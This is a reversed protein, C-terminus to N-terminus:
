QTPISKASYNTPLVTATPDIIKNRHAKREDIYILYLSNESESYAYVQADVFQFCNDYEVFDIQFLQSLYEFIAKDNICKFEGYNELYGLFFSTLIEDIIPYRCLNDYVCDQSESLLEFFQFAILKLVEPGLKQSGYRPSTRLLKQNGEVLEILQNLKSESDADETEFCFKLLQFYFIRIHAFADSQFIKVCRAEDLLNKQLFEPLTLPADSFLATKKLSSKYKKLHGLM